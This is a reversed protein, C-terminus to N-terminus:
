AKTLLIPHSLPLTIREVNGGHSIVSDVRNIAIVQSPMQWGPMLLAIDKPLIRRQRAWASMAKLVKTQNASAVGVVEVIQKIMVDDPDNWILARVAVDLDPPLPPPAASSEFATVFANLKVAAALLWDQLDSSLPAIFEGAKGRHEFEERQILPALRTPEGLTQLFNRHVKPIIVRAADLDEGQLPSNKAQILDVQWYAPDNPSALVAVVDIKYSEDLSDNFGTEVVLGNQAAFDREASVSRLVGEVGLFYRRADPILKRAQDPYKKQLRAEFDQQFAPWDITGALIGRAIKNQFAVEPGYGGVSIGIFGKFEDVLNNVATEGPKARSLLPVRELQKSFNERLFQMEGM